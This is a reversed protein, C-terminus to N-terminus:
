AGPQIYLLLKQGPQLYRSNSLANWRQLDRVSVNFRRSILWLSDGKRVEYAVQQLGEADTIALAPVKITLRQSPQLISDRAISNWGAIQSVSVDYTRALDWLTDGRRVM